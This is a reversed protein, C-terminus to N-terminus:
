MLSLTHPLIASGVPDDPDIQLHEPMNERWSELQGHLSSASKWLEVPHMKSSQEAYLTNLIRDMIISLRCLQEFTSISYTPCGSAASHVAYTHSNFEELEEFEDLFM